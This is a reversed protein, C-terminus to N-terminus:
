RDGEGDAKGSRSAAQRSVGFVLGRDLALGVIIRCVWRLASCLRVTGRPNRPSPVVSRTTAATQAVTGDCPTGARQGRRRGRRDAHVFPDELSDVFDNGFADSRALHRTADHHDTAPALDDQEFGVSVPLDLGFLDFHGGVGHEIQGREGLRDRRGRADHDEPLSPLESERSGTALYM